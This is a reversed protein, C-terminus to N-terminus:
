EVFLKSKKYIGSRKVAKAFLPYPTTRKVESFLFGILSHIHNGGSFLVPTNLSMIMGGQAADLILYYEGAAMHNSRLLAMPLKGARISDAHVQNWITFLKSDNPLIRPVHLKKLHKTEIVFFFEFSKDTIDPIIDGVIKETDVRRLGGSMPVRVFPVGVWEALYKACAREGSNGKTKSNIKNSNKSIGFIDQELSRLQKAM